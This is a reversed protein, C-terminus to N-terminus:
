GTLISANITFIMPVEKPDYEDFDSISVEGQNDGGIVSPDNSIRSETLQDSFKREGKKLRNKELVEQGLLVIADQYESIDVELEITQIDSFALSLKSHAEYTPYRLCDQHLLYSPLKRRRFCESEHSRFWWKTTFSDKLFTLQKMTLKAKEKIKAPLNKEIHVDYTTLSMTYIQGSDPDLCVIYPIKSKSM